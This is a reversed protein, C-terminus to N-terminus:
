GEVGGPIKQDNFTRGNTFDRMLDNTFGVVTIIFFVKGLHSLLSFHGTALLEADDGTNDATGLFCL